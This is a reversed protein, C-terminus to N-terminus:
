SSLMSSIFKQSLVSAAIKFGPEIEPLAVQWGELSKRIRLYVAFPVVPGSREPLGPYGVADFQNRLGFM